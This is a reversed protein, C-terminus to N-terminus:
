SWGVIPVQYMFTIFDSSGFTLPATATVSADARLQFGAVGDAACKLRLSSVSGIYMADVGFQAVGTDSATGGGVWVNNTIAGALKTTDINLGSPLQVSLAAATPAGNNLIYVQGYLTDGVRKYLGTYIAGTLWSGSTAQANWNNLISGWKVGISSTSDTTLVSGEAGKGLRSAVGSASGVIIDGPTTMPNTFGSTMATWSLNGAGDNIMTWSASGQSIPLALPYSTGSAVQTLSISGVVFARASASGMVDLTSKPSLTGIGLFGNGILRMRETLTITQNAITSFAIGAGASTSGWTETAEVFIRGANQYQSGTWGFSQINSLSASGVTPTRALNTGGATRMAITPNQTGFTDMTLRLQQGDAAGIHIGNTVSGVPPSLIDTNTSITLTADASSQGLGLRKTSANYYFGTNDQAYSGAGDVFVVSGTSFSSSTGTGGNANPLIGSVQSTLSVSGSTQSIPLNGTVQSTLSVSGSALKSSSDTLVVANPSLPVIIPSANFTKVGAFTQSGSGVLGPFTATASQFYFNASGITGGNPSLPAGDLPGINYPVGTVSGTTTGGTVSPYRTYTTAM